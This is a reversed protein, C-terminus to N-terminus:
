ALEKVIRWLVGFMAVGCLLALNGYSVFPLGIGKTPFLGVAIAINIIAQIAILLVFRQIIYRGFVSSVAWSLQLGKYM